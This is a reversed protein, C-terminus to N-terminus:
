RRDLPVVPLVLAEGEVGGNDRPTIADPLPGTAQASCFRCAKTRAQMALFRTAEMNFIAWLFAFELLLM